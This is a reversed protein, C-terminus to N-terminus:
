NIDKIDLEIKLPHKASVENLIDLVEQATLLHHVISFQNVGVYCGKVCEFDNTHLTIKEIPKKNYFGSYWEFFERIKAKLDEKVFKQDKKLNFLIRGADMQIGNINVHFIGNKKIKVSNNFCKPCYQTDM